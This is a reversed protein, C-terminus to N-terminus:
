GRCLHIPIVLLDRASHLSSNTRISNVVSLDQYTHKHKHRTSISTCFSQCPTLNKHLILHLSLNRHSVHPICSFYVKILHQLFCVCEVIETEAIEGYYSILGLDRSHYLYYLYHMFIM